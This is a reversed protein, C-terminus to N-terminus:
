FQTIDLVPTVDYQGFASWADGAQTLHAEDACELLAFVVESKAGVWAGLFSVGPTRNPGKAEFAEMAQNKAGPKLRFQVMYKM